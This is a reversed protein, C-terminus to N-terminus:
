KGEPELRILKASIAAWRDAHDTELMEPMFGLGLYTRIARLRFDDTDLVAERCRRSRMHTLAALSICRGLGRGRYPPAVAVMHLYGVGTEAFCKDTATAVCEDGAALFLIGEKTVGPEQLFLRTASEENWEGIAGNMLSAWRSEDGACFTRLEFGHPVELITLGELSERRM